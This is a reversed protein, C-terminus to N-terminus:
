AEQRCGLYALSVLKVPIMLTLEATGSAPVSGNGAFQRLWAIRCRAKIKGTSILTSLVYDTSLVSYETHLIYM